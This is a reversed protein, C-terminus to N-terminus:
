IRIEREHTTHETRELNSTVRTETQTPGRLADQVAAQGSGQHGGTGPHGSPFLVELVSSSSGAFTAVVSGPFTSCPKYRLRKQRRM